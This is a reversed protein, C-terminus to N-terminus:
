GLQAVEVLVQTCEAEVRRPRRQADLERWVIDHAEDV